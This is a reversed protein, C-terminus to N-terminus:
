RQTYVSDANGAAWTEICRNHLLEAQPLQGFLSRNARGTFDARRVSDMVSPTRYKVDTGLVMMPALIVELAVGRLSTDTLYTRRTSFHLLNM